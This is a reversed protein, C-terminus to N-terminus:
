LIKELGIKQPRLGCAEYFKLADPNCTWVNLTVNYCGLTKAFSVVFQYLTTGIKRRRYREDVCIDDIRMTKVNTLVNDNAYKQFVCFAYGLVEGNEEAVFLPKNSDSIIERLQEDTYKKGGAKFLDPRGRHHLDLVQYLLRNINPIDNEVALRIQM